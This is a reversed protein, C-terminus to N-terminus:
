LHNFVATYLQPGGPVIFLAFQGLSSNQFTYTGQPLGDVPGGNFSLVFGTTPRSTHKPPPVAMSTTSVPALKPQDDVSLLRLWVPQELSPSTVEFSAGVVGTFAQRGPAAHMPTTSGALPTAAHKSHSAGFLPAAACGIAALASNHLFQRRSVSMTVEFKERHLM